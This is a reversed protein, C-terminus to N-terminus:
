SDYRKPRTLVYKTQYKKSWLVKPYGMEALRATSLLHWNSPLPMKGQELMEVVEQTTLERCKPPLPTLDVVLEPKPPIVSVRNPTANFRFVKSV